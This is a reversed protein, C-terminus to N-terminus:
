HLMRNRELSSDDLRTRITWQLNCYVPTLRAKGFAILAVWIRGNERFSGDPTCSASQHLLCPLLDGSGHPPESVKAAIPLSAVASRTAPAPSARMPRLRVRAMTTVVPISANM